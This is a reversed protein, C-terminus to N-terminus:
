IKIEMLDEGLIIETEPTQDNLSQLDFHRNIHSLCIQKAGSKNALATIEADTLHGSDIIAFNANKLFEVEQEHYYSDGTICTTKDKVEFKIGHNGTPPLSIFHLELNGIEFKLSSELEVVNLDFEFPKTTLDLYDLIGIVKSMMEEVGKPGYITLPRIRKDGAQRASHLYPILDTIHDPHFHSIIIHEIEDQNVGLQILKQATGWGMDFVIKTGDIEILVSSATRKQTLDATGTGLLTLKNM